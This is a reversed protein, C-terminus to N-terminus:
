SPGVTKTRTLPCTKLPAQQFLLSKSIRSRDYLSSVRRPSSRTDSTLISNPIGMCVLFPLYPSKKIQSLRQTKLGHRENKLHVCSRAGTIPHQVHAPLSDRSFRSRDRRQLRLSHLATTLLAFGKADHFVDSDSGRRDKESPSKCSPFALWACTRIRFDSSRGPM